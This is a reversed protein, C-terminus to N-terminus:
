LQSGKHFKILFHVIGSAGTMYDATALTQNNSLWHSSLKNGSWAIKSLVMIIWEAKLKWEGNGTSIYADVFIAGIRCMGSQMSLDEHVLKEPFGKLLLMAQNLYGPDKKIQYAKLFITILGLIGDRLQVDELHGRYKKQQYRTIIKPALNSFTMLSRNIAEWLVESPSAAYYELLSYCIGTNGQQFLIASEPKNKGSQIMFWNGNRDQANLIFAAKESLYEAVFSEGLYKACKLASLIQGAAGYALDAGASKIELCARLLAINEENEPLLDASIGNSIALAMGAAGGALGPPLGTVEKLYRHKLFQWNRYYARECYAIDFGVIKAEAITYLIGSIGEYFGGSKEFGQNPKGSEGIARKRTQWIGKNLVTPETVLGRLAGQILNHLDDNNITKLRTKQKGKNHKEGLRLRFSALEKEVTQIDPRDTPLSSLCALLTETLQQDGLFFQMSDSFAATNNVDFAIPPIGTLITLITAGLGYLDEKETPAMIARQEPSMFGHTGFDYPPQQQGQDRYQALEIDIVILEGDPGIIFNVPTVDRHILGKEHFRRVMRCIKELYQVTELQRKLPWNYFWECNPNIDQTVYDFVAKGKVYEMAIYTAGNEEFLDFIKPTRIHGKIEEFLKAQWRIRDEMDRGYDDSWMNRRGQKLVCKKVLFFRTLYHAKLVNGRFDLKFADIPKYRGHLVPDIPPQVPSALDEFPWTIGDPMQFPISQIDLVLDGKANYISKQVVGAADSSLIPAFGGYRTYVCGGLQADTLIKPGKYATTLRILERAVMIAREDTEPYITIIKGLNEGGLNGDLASVATDYDQVVRFTIGISALYPILQDLAAKIQSRIISIHLLWGQVQGLRGVQWHFDIRNPDLGHARLVDGYNVRWNNVVSPLHSSLPIQEIISEGDDGNPSDTASLTSVVGQLEWEANTRDNIAAM